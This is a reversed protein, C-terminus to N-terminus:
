SEIKVPSRNPNHVRMAVSLTENHAAVFASQTRSSSPAISSNATLKIEYIMKATGYPSRFAFRRGAFFQTREAASSPTM